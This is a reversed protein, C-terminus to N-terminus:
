AIGRAVTAGHRGVLAARWAFDGFREGPSREAAWRGLAEDLAALIAPEDVNERYLV